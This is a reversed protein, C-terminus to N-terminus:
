FNLLDKSWLGHFFLFVKSFLFPTTFFCHIVNLLFLKFIFNILSTNSVSSERTSVTFFRLFLTSWLEKQTSGFFRCSAILNKNSADLRMDLIIDQRFQMISLIIRALISNSFCSASASFCFARM